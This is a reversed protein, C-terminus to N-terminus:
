APPRMEDLKQELIKIYDVAEDNDLENLNALGTTERFEQLLAKRKEADGGTLEQYYRELSDKYLKDCKWEPKRKDNGNTSAAAQPKDSRPKEGKPQERKEDEAEPDDGTPILFSKLIFYKTAMTMAKSLC